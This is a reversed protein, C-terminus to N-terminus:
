AFKVLRDPESLSRFTRGSLTASARERVLAMGEPTVSDSVDKEEPLWNEVAKGYKGAPDRRKQAM